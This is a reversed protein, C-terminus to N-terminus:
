KDFLEGQGEIVIAALRRVRDLAQARDAEDISAQELHAALEVIQALVSKLEGSIRSLADAQQALTDDRALSAATAQAEAIMTSLEQASLTLAGEQEPAPPAFDSAFPFPKLTEIQRGM